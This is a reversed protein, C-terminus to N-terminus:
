IFYILIIEPKQKRLNMYELQYVYIYIFLVLNRHIYTCKTKAKSVSVTAIIEQYDKAYVRFAPIAMTHDERIIPHDGLLTYTWFCAINRMLYLNFTSVNYTRVRFCGKSLKRETLNSRRCSSARYHSALDDEVVLALRRSVILQIRNRNYRIYHLLCAQLFKM